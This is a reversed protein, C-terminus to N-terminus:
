IKGPAPQGAPSQDASVAELTEGLLVRRVRNEVQAVDRNISSLNQVLPDQFQLHSLARNSLEVVADLRASHAQSSDGHLSASRVQAAVEEVFGRTREQMATARAGVPP